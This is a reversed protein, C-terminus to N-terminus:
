KKARAFYSAADRLFDNERRLEKNDRRLKALEEKDATTVADAGGAGSDIKAQRVWSYVSSGHLGHQTCVEPVTRRGELVLKVIESKFERSYRRREKAMM